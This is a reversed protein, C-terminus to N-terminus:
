KWYQPEYFHRYPIQAIGRAVAARYDPLEDIPVFGTGEANIPRNGVVVLDVDPDLAEAVVCGETALMRAVEGRGLPAQFRGILFARTGLTARTRITPQPAACQVANDIEATAVSAPAATPPDITEVCSSQIGSPLAADHSWATAVASAAVAAMLAWVVFRRDVMVSVRLTAM